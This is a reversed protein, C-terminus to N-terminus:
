RKLLNDVLAVDLDVGQEYPGINLPFFYLYRRTKASFLAHFRRPVRYCEHVKLRNTMCADSRKLTNILEDATVDERTAFSIIQSLASVDKDTRGAAVCTRQGLGDYIDGEVSVRNSQKQYGSYMSGIYSIRMAFTQRRYRPDGSIYELKGIDHIAHLNTIGSYVLNDSLETSENTCLTYLLDIISKWDRNDFYSRHTSRQALTLLSSQISDFVQSKIM